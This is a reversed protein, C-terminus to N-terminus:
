PSKKLQGGFVIDWWDIDIDPLLRRAEGTDKKAMFTINLITQHDIAAFAVYMNPNYGCFLPGTQLSIYILM